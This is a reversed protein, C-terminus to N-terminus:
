NRRRARADAEARAMEAAVKAKIRTAIWADDAADETWKWIEQHLATTEAPPMAFAPPISARVRREAISYLLGVIGMTVAPGAMLGAPIAVAWGAGAIVAAAVCLSSLVANLAVIQLPNAIRPSARLEPDFSM